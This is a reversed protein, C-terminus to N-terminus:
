EGKVLAYWSVGDIDVFLLFSNEARGQRIM